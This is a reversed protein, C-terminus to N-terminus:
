FVLAPFVPTPESSYVLMCGKNCTKETGLCWGSCREVDLPQWPQGKWAVFQAEVVQGKVPCMFRKPYLAKQLPTEILYCGWIYVTFGIAALILLLQLGMLLPAFAVTFDIEAPVLQGLFVPPLM